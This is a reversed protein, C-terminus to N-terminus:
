RKEVGADIDQPRLILGRDGLRLDVRLAPRDPDGRLQTGVTPFREETMVVVKWILGQARLLLLAVDIPDGIPDGVQSALGNSNEKVAVRELTGAERRRDWVGCVVLQLHEDVELLFM